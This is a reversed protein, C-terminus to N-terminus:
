LRVSHIVPVLGIVGSLNHFQIDAEERLASSWRYARFSFTLTRKKATLEFERREARPASASRGSLFIGVGFGMDPDSGSRGFEDSQAM